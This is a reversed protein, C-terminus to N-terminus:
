IISEKGPTDDSVITSGTESNLVMQMAQAATTAQKQDSTDFKEVAITALSQPNPLVVLNIKNQFEKPDKM